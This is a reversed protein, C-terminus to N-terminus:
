SLFALEEGIGRERALTYTQAAVAIDSLAIGVGKYLTIEYPTDRQPGDGAVVDGLEWVSDWAFKGTTIPIIFDGAESKAQELSDTAVLSARQLTEDDIERRKSWNSGIANIHCGAKLWSGDIVPTSAGTATIVIDANEIAAQASEAPKVSIQLQESMLQCFGELEVRRRSYVLIESIPRVACVGLLQTEAQKGAGIMGVSSATEIALHRTALGSMGGTRM